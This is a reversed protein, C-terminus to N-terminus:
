LSHVSTLRDLAVLSVDRPFSIGVTVNRIDVWEQIVLTTGPSLRLLVSSCCHKFTRKWIFTFKADKLM